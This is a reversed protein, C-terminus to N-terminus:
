ENVPPDPSSYALPIDTKLSYRNVSQLWPVGSRSDNIGSIEMYFAVVTATLAFDKGQDVQWILIL